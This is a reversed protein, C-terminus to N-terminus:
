GWRMMRRVEAARAEMADIRANSEAIYALNRDITECMRAAAAAAADLMVALTDFYGNSLNIQASLLMLDSVSLGLRRAKDIIAQKERVSAHVVITETAPKEM